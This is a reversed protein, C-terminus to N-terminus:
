RRVTLGEREVLAVLDDIMARRERVVVPVFVNGPPMAGRNAGIANHRAQTGHEFIFSHKATSRVRASAGAGQVTARDVKVGRKLNGTRAPYANRIQAAAAEAHQTVIAGAEHALHEPLNRLAERLENFGGLTLKNNSM